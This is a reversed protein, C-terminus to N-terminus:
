GISWPTSQPQIPRGTRGALSVALLTWMHM